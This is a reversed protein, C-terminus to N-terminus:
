AFQSGGGLLKGVGSELLSPLLAALGQQAEAADGVQGAPTLKDIIKPLYQSLMGSAQQPDIGLKAALGAIQDQGLVNQIQESSIAKNEGMGIWSSVVEGLGNQTFQQLLGQIGGNQQLLGGLASLLPNDGGAAPQDSSQGTVAGLLSDLLGM